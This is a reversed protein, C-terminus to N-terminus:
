CAMGAVPWPTGAAKQDRADADGTREAADTRQRSRPGAGHAIRTRTAALDSPEVSGPHDAVGLGPLGTALAAPRCLGQGGGPEALGLHLDPGAHHHGVTGCPHPAQGPLQPLAAPRAPLFLGLRALRSDAPQGAAGRVARRDHDHAPDSDTTDPDPLDPQEHRPKPTQKDSHWLKSGAMVPWVMPRDPRQSAAM